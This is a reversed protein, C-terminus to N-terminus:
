MDGSCAVPPVTSARLSMKLKPAISYSITVPTRANAPADAASVSLATRRACGFGGVAITGPTGVSRSFTM